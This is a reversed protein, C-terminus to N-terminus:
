NSAQIFELIKDHEVALLNARVRMHHAAIQWQADSLSQPDRINHCRMCNEEWLQVGTKEMMMAAQAEDGEAPQTAQQSQCSVLNGAVVLGIIGAVVFFRTRMPHHRM